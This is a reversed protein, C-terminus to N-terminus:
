TVRHPFFPGVCHCMLSASYAGVDFVHWAHQRSGIRHQNTPWAGSCLKSRVFKSCTGTSVSLEEGKDAAASVCGLAKLSGFLAGKFQGYNSRDYLPPEGCYNCNVQYSGWGAYWKDGNANACHVLISPTAGGYKYSDHKPFLVYM